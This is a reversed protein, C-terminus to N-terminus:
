VLAPFWMDHAIFDEEIDHPQHLVGKPIRVFSGPVLPVDGIGDIWVKAKGKIVYLIDDSNEHIHKEIQTGVPWHVMACTVDLNDDKKSLLYAIEVGKFKPHPSWKMEAPQLVKKSV